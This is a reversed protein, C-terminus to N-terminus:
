EIKKELKRLEAQMSELEKKMNDLEEKEKLRTEKMRNREREELGKGREAPDVNAWLSRIAGVRSEWADRRKNALDTLTGSSESFWQQIQHEYEAATTGRFQEFAKLADRLKDRATLLASTRVALAEELLGAVRDDARRGREKLKDLRERTEAMRTELLKVFDPDSKQLSEFSKNMRASLENMIKEALERAELNKRITSENVPSVRSAAANARRAAADWDERLTKTLEALNTLQKRFDSDRSVFWEYFERAREKTLSAQTNQEIEALLADREAPTKATLEGERFRELFKKIIVSQQAAWQWRANAAAMSADVDLIARISALKEALPKSLMDARLRLEQESETAERLAEDFSRQLEGEAHTSHAAAQMALNVLIESIERGAGDLDNMHQQAAADHGKLWTVFEKATAEGSTKTADQQIQYFMREPGVRSNQGTRVERWTRLWEKIISPELDKFRADNKAKEFISVIDLAGDLKAAARTIQASLADVRDLVSPADPQPVPRSAVNTDQVAAATLFGLVLAIRKM